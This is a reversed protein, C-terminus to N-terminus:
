REPLERLSQIIAELEGARRRFLGAKNVLLLVGALFVSFGLIVLLQCLMAIQFYGVLYTPSSSSGFGSTRSFYFLALFSFHGLAGLASMVTGALM